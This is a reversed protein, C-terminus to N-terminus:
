SGSGAIAEAMTYKHHILKTTRAVSGNLESLVWQIIQHDDNIIQRKHITIDDFVIHVNCTEVTVARVPRQHQDYLYAVDIRKFHVVFFAESGCSMCRGICDLLPSEFQEEVACRIAELLLSM